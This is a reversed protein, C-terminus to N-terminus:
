CIWRAPLSAPAPPIQPRLWRGAPPSATRRPRRRDRIWASTNRFSRSPRPAAPPASASNATDSRGSWRPRSHIRWWRPRCRTKRGSPRSRSDPIDRRTLAQRGHCALRGEGDRDADPPLAPSPRRRARGRCRLCLSLRGSPRSDRKATQSFFRATEPPCHAPRPRGGAKDPKANYSRGTAARLTRILTTRLSASRSIGPIACPSPAEARCM